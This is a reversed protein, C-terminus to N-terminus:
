RLDKWDAGGTNLCRALQRRADHETPYSWEARRGSDVGGDCIEVTWVEAPSRWLWVDRRALRGFNGNWWHEIM